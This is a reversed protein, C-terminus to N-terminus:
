ANNACSFSASSPNDHLAKGSVWLGMGCLVCAVGIALLNVMTLSIKKWNKFWLGKNMFLWFIGSLGYTFWSAFLATILSLLNSFVPIAEAIIWALIWLCLAILVWSGIAVADRKHMRDTGRFVRIYIYKAAVHGYIVGAILIQFNNTKSYRSVTLHHPDYPLFPLAM